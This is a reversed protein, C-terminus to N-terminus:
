SSTPSSFVQARMRVEVGNQLLRSSTVDLAFPGFALDAM